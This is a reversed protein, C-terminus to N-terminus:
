VTDQPAAKAASSLEGLLLNISYACIQYLTSVVRFWQRKPPPSPIAVKVFYDHANFAM